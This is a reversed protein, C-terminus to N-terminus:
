QTEEIGMCCQEVLNWLFDHFCLRSPLPSLQTEVHTLQLARACLFYLSSHPSFNVDTNGYFDRKGQREVGDISIKLKVQILMSLLSIQLLSCGTGVASSSSNKKSSAILNCDINQTLNYIKKSLQWKFHQVIQLLCTMITFYLGFPHHPVGARHM